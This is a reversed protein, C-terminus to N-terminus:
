SDPSSVLSKLEAFTQEPEEPFQDVFQELRRSPTLGLEARTDANLEDLSKANAIRVLDEQLLGPLKEILEPQQKFYYPVESEKQTRQRDTEIPNSVKFTSNAVIGHESFM